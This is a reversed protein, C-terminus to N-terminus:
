NAHIRFADRSGRAGAELMINIQLDIRKLLQPIETLLFSLLYRYCVGYM